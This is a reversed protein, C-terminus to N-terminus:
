PVEDVVDRLAAEDTWELCRGPRLLALHSAAMSNDYRDRETEDDNYQRKLVWAKSRYNPGFLLGLEWVYGGDFDELVAVIHSAEGCLIDFVRVWLGIEERSLGFEELQTSVGGQRQDLLRYVIARRDAAPGSGAGAVLYRRDYSSIRKLRDGNLIDKIQQHQAPTLEIGEVAAMFEHDDATTDDVDDGVEPSM